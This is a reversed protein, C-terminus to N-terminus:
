ESKGEKDKTYVGVFHNRWLGIRKFGTDKFTHLGTLPHRLWGMYRGGVSAFGRDKVMADIDNGNLTLIHSGGYDKWDTRNGKVYVELILTEIRPSIFKLLEEFHNDSLHEITHSCVFIDFEEVASDWFQENLEISVFGLSKVEPLTKEVMIRSIDYGTWSKFELRSLCNFALWGDAPGLETVRKEGLDLGTKALQRFAWMFFSTHASRELVSRSNWCDVIGKHQNFTLSDYNERWLNFGETDGCKIKEIIDSSVM